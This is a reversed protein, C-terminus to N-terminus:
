AIIPTIKISWRLFPAKEIRFIYVPIFASRMLIILLAAEKRTKSFLLLIGLYDRHIGEHLNFIM